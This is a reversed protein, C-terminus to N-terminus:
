ELLSLKYNLIENENELNNNKEKLLFLRNRLLNIEQSLEKKSMENPNLKWSNKIFLNEEFEKKNLLLNPCNNKLMKSYESKVIKEIDLSVAVYSNNNLEKKLNLDISELEKENFNNNIEVDYYEYEYSLDENNFKNDFNSESLTPFVSDEM